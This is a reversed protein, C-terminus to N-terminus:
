AIENSEMITSIVIDRVPGFMRRLIFDRGVADSPLCIFNLSSSIGLIDDASFACSRLVYLLRQEEQSRIEGETKHCEECLTILCEPEHEWPERGREYWSHHVHLTNKTEGCFRCTWNDRNLIELRKRQWRPDKLKESYTMVWGLAVIGRM